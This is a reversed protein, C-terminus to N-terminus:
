QCRLLSNTMHIAFTFLFRIERVGQYETLENNQGLEHLTRSYTPYILKQIPVSTIWTM